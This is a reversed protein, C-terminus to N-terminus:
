GKEASVGTRLPWRWHPWDEASASAAATVAALLALARVTSRDPMNLRKDCAPGCGGTTLIDSMRTLTPSSYANRATATEDRARGAGARACAVVVSIVPVMVSVEPPTSGPARM